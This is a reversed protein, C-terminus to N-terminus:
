KLKILYAFTGKQMLMQIPKETSSEAQQAFVSTPITVLAVAAYYIKNNM